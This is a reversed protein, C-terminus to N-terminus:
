LPTIVDYGFDEAFGGLVECRFGLCFSDPVRNTIIVRGGALYTSCGLQWVASIAITLDITRREAAAMM